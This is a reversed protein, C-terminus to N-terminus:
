PRMGTAARQLGKVIVWDDPGIGSEIVTMGEHLSGVKVKRYEVTNEKNVTLLYRERQDRSIAEEPVLLSRHPDGFPIRVRVYLGPTLYEKDNKFIGRVRLTGTTRDMKNDAFDIIGAHPFGEEDALGIEVPIKLDKLRKPHLEQGTRFALAQYKLLAEEDVNFYVYIPNTTVVMTLVAADNTGPQVLNGETIRTRSVRGDIPSTIKTFELNM